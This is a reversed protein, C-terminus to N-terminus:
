LGLETREAFCGFSHTHDDIPAAAVTKREGYAAAPMGILAERLARADDDVHAQHVRDGNIRLGTCRRHSRAGREATQVPCDRRMAQGEGAPATWGDSGGTVEEAAAVSVQRAGMSQGAVAKQRDIHDIGVALLDASIRM